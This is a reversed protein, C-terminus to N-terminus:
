HHPLCHKFWAAIHWLAMSVLHSPFLFSRFSVLFM